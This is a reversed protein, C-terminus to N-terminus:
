IKGVDQSWGLRKAESLAMICAKLEMQNNTAGKYGPPCFDHVRERGCTDVLVLRMGIGGTRPSSFSSGDTYINLANEALMWAGWDKARSSERSRSALLIRNAHLRRRPGEM